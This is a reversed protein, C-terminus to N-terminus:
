RGPSTGPFTRSGKGSDYDVALDLEGCCTVYGTPVILLGSPGALTPYARAACAGALLLAAVGLTLLWKM